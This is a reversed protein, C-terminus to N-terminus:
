QSEKGATKNAFRENEKLTKELREMIRECRARSAGEVSDTSGGRKACDGAIKEALLHMGTKQQEGTPKDIALANGASFTVSATLAGVLMAKNFREIM